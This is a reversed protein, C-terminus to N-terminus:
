QQALSAASGMQQKSCSCDLQVVCLRIHLCIDCRFCRALMCQVVQIIWSHQRM